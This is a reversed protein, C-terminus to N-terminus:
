DDEENRDAAAEAPEASGSTASASEADREAPESIRDAAERDMPTSMGANREISAAPRRLRRGTM